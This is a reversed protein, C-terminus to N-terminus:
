NCCSWFFGLIFGLRVLECFGGIQFGLRLVYWFGKIEFGLRVLDCIGEIDFGLRIAGFRLFSSSLLCMFVIIMIVSSKCQDEVRIHRVGFRLFSSYIFWEFISQFWIM